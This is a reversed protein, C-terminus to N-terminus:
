LPKLPELKSVILLKNFISFFMWFILGLNTWFIGWMFSFFALLNSDSYPNFISLILLIFVSSHYLM